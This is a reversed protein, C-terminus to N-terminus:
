RVLGFVPLAVTAGIMLSDFRDLIGGHGPLVTGFDKVGAARKIWSAGLDGVLAGAVIAVARAAADLPQLGAADHLLYAGLIALAVGGIAGEVTKTPSIRPALPRRGVLQGTVQSFGDCLSVVLFVFMAQEATARLAFAVAGAAGVALGGWAGLRTRTNPFRLPGLEVAALAAIAGMLATFAVRGLSVVVLVVNILVLYTIFKVWRSRRVDASRRRSGAYLGIGGIAFASNAFLLFPVIM